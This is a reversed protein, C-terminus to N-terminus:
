GSESSGTELRQLARADVLFPELPVALTQVANRHHQMVEVLRRQELLAEVLDASRDQHAAM